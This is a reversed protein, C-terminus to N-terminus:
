NKSLDDIFLVRLSPSATVRHFFFVCYYNRWTGADGHGRTEEDGHGRTGTDGHGRTGTDGHGRTGTDG